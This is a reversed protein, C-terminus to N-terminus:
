HEKLNNKNSKIFNHIDNRDFIITGGIKAGIIKKSHFLRIIKQKDCKLVEAAEKATLYKERINSEDLFFRKLEERVTKRVTGKVISELYEEIM